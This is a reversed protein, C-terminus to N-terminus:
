ERSAEAAIAADERAAGSVGIAGIVQGARVIPTGGPVTVMNFHVARGIRELEAPDLNKSIGSTPRQFNLATLAKAEALDPAMLLAGDMRDLQLLMGTADVVAVGVRLQKAEAQAIAKDACSRAEALTLSM